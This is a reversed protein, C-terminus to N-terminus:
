TWYLFILLQAMLHLITPLVTMDLVRVEDDCIAIFTQMETVSVSLLVLDDAYM